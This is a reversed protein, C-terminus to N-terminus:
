IWVYFLTEVVPQMEEETTFGWVGERAGSGQERAGESSGESEAQRGREINRM